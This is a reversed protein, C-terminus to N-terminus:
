LLYWFFYDILISNPSELILVLKIMYLTSIFFTHANLTVSPATQIPRIKFEQTSDPLYTIKGLSRLSELKSALDNTMNVEQGMLDILIPRIFRDANSVQGELDPTPWNFRSLACQGQLGKTIDYFYWNPFRHDSFDETITGTKRPDNEHYFRWDFAEAADVAKGLAELHTDAIRRQVQDESPQTTSRPCRTCTTQLAVNSHGNPCKWFSLPVIPDGRDYPTKRSRRSSSSSSSSSSAM